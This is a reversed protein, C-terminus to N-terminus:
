RPSKAFVQPQSTGCEQGAQEIQVDPADVEFVAGEEPAADGRSVRRVNSVRLVDGVRLSPPRGHRVLLVVPCPLLAGVSQGEVERDGRVAAVQVRLDRHDETANALAPSAWYEDCHTRVTCSQCNSPSPKATPPHEALAVTAVALARSVDVELSGLAALGPADWSLVNGDPYILVLRTAALEQPNLRRDRAFLLAYFELQERDGPSPRGSKFDILVIGGRTYALVDLRGTCLSRAVGVAASLPVETLIRTAPPDDVPDELHGTSDSDKITLVVRLASAVYRHIKSLEAACSARLEAVGAADLEEDTACRAVEHASAERITAPVGRNLWRRWFPIM